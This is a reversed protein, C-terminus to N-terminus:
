GALFEKLMDLFQRPAEAHVWHGAGSIIRIEAHPFLRHIIAHHHPKIYPSRGGAIFLTPGAYSRGPTIQPFDTIEAMGDDLAALNIRWRYRDGDRVLNQLLFGRVVPDPVAYELYEGAEDRNAIAGLPVEAMAEIYAHLESGTPAPAIDVIVLRRIQGPRALAAAMAVKGGMSHGVVTTPALNHQHIFRGLDEAMAEYRMDADWPSDGHNRLDLALVRHDSSLAKAISGWNRKSGFLGHLIILTEGHGLDSHSLQLAM